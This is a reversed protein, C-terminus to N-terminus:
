VFLAFTRRVTHRVLSRIETITLSYIPGVYQAAVLGIPLYLLCYVFANALSAGALYKSDGLKGIFLMDVFGMGTGCLLSIVIPLSLKTMEVLELKIAPLLSFTPTNQQELEELQTEPKHPTEPVTSGEHEATVEDSAVHSSM